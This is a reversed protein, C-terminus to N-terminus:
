GNKKKKWSERVERILIKLTRTGIKVNVKEGRPSNINQTLRLLEDIYPLHRCDTCILIGSRLYVRNTENCIDCKNMRKKWSRVNALTRTDKTVVGDHAVQFCM